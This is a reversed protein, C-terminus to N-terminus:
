NLSKCHPCTHSINNKPDITITFKSRCNRCSVFKSKYKGSARIAAWAKEADEKTEYICSGSGIRYKSNSCKIVPM